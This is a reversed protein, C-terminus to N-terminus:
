RNVNIQNVEKSMIQKNIQGDTQKNAQKNCYLYCKDEIVLVYNLKIVYENMEGRKKTEGM